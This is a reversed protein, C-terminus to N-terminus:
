RGIKEELIVWKGGSKVFDLTKMTSSKLSDSRYIQRFTASAHSADSIRIKPSVIAVQISKPSTVREKRGNEWDARKEGRPTKFDKAYYSLYAKANRDSWAKAWENLTSLVEDHQESAAHKAPQEVIPKPAPKTEAVPPLAVAATKAPSTVTETRIPTKQGTNKLDDLKAPTGMTNAPPAAIPKATNLAITTAPQKSVTARPLSQSGKSGPNFLERVLSLKIQATTNSKDLQLAKDYAQSAMKAYIDGLNEHATAYTPHTRIAAELASKAKDYQGQSYYLVALNNYPEPLNPYDQTLDNFIKIAESANNQETLIIGKQFRAQADKPHAALYKNLLEIAEASKGQRALQQADTLEDAHVASMCFLPLCLIATKLLPHLATIRIKIM